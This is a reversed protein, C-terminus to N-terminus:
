IKKKNKQDSDRKLVFLFPVFQEATDGHLFNLGKCQTLLFWLCFM